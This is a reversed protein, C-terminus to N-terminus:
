AAHELSDLLLKTGEIADVILAVDDALEEVSLKQSCMRRSRTPGYESDDDDIATTMIYDIIIIFLYPAFTDGQLVGALIDFAKTIGDATVM